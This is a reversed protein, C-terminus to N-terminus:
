WTVMKSDGAARAVDPDLLQDNSGRESLHIPFRLGLRPDNSTEGPSGCSIYVNSVDKANPDYLDYM